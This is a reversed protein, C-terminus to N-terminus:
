LSDDLYFDFDYDDSGFEEKMENFAQLFDSKTEDITSGYGTVGFRGFDYETYASFNNEGAREVIVIVKEM